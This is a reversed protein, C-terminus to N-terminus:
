LNLRQQIMVLEEVLKNFNPFEQDPEKSLYPKLCPFEHHRHKDDLEHFKKVLVAHLSAQKDIFDKCNPKVEKVCDQIVKLSACAFGEFGRAERVEDIKSAYCKSLSFSLFNSNLNLTKWTYRSKWIRFHANATRTLSNTLSTLSVTTMPDPSKMDQDGLWLVSTMLSHQQLSPVNAMVASSPKWDKALNSTTEPLEETEGWQLSVSAEV